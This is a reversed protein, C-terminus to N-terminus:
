EEMEKEIDYLELFLATRKRFDKEKTLNNFHRSVAISTETYAPLSCISIEFIEGIQTIHHILSDNDGDQWTDAEITFGFSMGKLNGNRVNEYVDRGLTTNPMDMTFFLGKDDVRLELTDSDVRALINEFNHDYLGLVNSLDVGDFAGADTYEIFGMDESPQGFVCAYGSVQGISNSNDTANRVQLDKVVMSRVNLDKKTVKRTM